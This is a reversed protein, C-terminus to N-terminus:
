TVDIYQTCLVSINRCKGNLYVITRQLRKHMNVRQQHSFHVASVHLLTFIFTNHLPQHYFFSVYTDIVLESSIRRKIQVNVDPTNYNCFHLVDTGVLISLKYM